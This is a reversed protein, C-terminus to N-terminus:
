EFNLFFFLFLFGTPTICNKETRGGEPGARRKGVMRRDIRRDKIEKKNARKKKSEQCKQLFDKKFFNKIKELIKYLIYKFM